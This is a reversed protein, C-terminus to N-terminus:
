KLNLDLKIIIDHNINIDRGGFTIVEVRMLWLLLFYSVDSGDANNLM